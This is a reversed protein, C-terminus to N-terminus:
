VSLAGKRVSDGSAELMHDSVCARQLCDHQDYAMHPMFLATGQLCIAVNGHVSSLGSALNPMSLYSRVRCYGAAREMNMVGAHLADLLQELM